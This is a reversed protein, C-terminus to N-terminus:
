CLPPIKKSIPNAPCSQTQLPSPPLVPIAPQNSAITVSTSSAMPLPGQGENVVPLPAAANVPICSYITGAQSPNPLIVCLSVPSQARAAFPAAILAAALALRSLM